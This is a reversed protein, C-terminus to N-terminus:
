ECLQVCSASEQTITGNEKIEITTNFRPLDRLTITVNDITKTIKPTTMTIAIVLDGSPYKCDFACEKAQVLLCVLLVVPVMRLKVGNSIKYKYTKADYIKKM